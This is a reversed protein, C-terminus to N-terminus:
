LGFCYIWISLITRCSSHIHLTDPDESTRLFIFLYAM